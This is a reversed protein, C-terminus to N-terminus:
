PGAQVGRSRGRAKRSDPETGSVAVREPVRRAASSVGHLIDM